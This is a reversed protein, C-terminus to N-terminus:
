VEVRGEGPALSPSPAGNTSCARTCRMTSANWRRVLRVLAAMVKTASWSEALSSSPSHPSRLLAAIVSSQSPTDLRSPIHVSSLTIFFHYPLLLYHSWSHPPILLSLFSILLPLLSSHSPLCCSPSPLALLLCFCPPTPSLFCFSSPSPLLLSIFSVPPLMFAHSSQPTLLCSSPALLLFTLFFSHATPLQLLSCFPSFPPPIISISPPPLPNVIEESHFVNIM